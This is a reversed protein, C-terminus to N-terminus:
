GRLEGIVKLAQTYEEVSEAIVGNIASERISAVEDKMFQGGLFPHTSYYRLDTRVVEVVQGVKVDTPVTDGDDDVYGSGVDLVVAATFSKEDTFNRHHTSAGLILGGESKIEPNPLIEVFVRSGFIRNFTPLREKLQRYYGLYKSQM